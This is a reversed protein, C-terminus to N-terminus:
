INISSLQQYVKKQESELLLQQIFQEDMLKKSLESIFKLHLQNAEEPVGILFVLQVTEPHLPSWLFPQKSRLFAIFPQKVTSSKGHPIAISYGIATSIEMERAMISTLFELDNDIKDFTVLQQIFFDFCEQQSNIEQDLFVLDQMIVQNATIPEM